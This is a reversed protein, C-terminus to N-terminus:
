RCNRCLYCKFTIQIYVYNCPFKSDTSFLEYNVTIYLILVEVFGRSESFNFIQATNDTFM